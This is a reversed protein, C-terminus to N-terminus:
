TSLFRVSGPEILAATLRGTAYAGTDVSIRGGTSAAESVVYHGHVMWYGDQRSKRLFDPHGWLLGHGRRPEIPSAPDGGAHTVHLNGSSWVLPLGRMWAVLDDGAARLLADRAQM